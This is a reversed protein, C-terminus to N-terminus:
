YTEYKLGNMFQKFLNQGLIVKIYDFNTEKPELWSHRKIQAAVTIVVYCALRLRITFLSGRLYKEIM